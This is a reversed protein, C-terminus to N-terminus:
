PVNFCNVSTFVTLCEGTGILVTTLPTLTLAKIIRLGKSWIYKKCDLSKVAGDSVKNMM